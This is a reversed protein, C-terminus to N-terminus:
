SYNVIFQGLICFNFSQWVDLFPHNVNVLVKLAKKTTTLHQLIDPLLHDSKLM